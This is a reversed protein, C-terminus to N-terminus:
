RNGEFRCKLTDQSEPRIAMCSGSLKSCDFTEFYFDWTIYQDNNDAGGTWAYWNNIESSYYCYCEQYITKTGNTFKIHMTWYGKAPVPIFLLFSYNKFETFIFQSYFMTDGTIHVAYPKVIHYPDFSETIGVCQPFKESPDEVVDSCSLFIVTVILLTILKVM